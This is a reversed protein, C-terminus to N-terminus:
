RKVQGPIDLNPADGLSVQPRAVDVDPLAKTAARAAAQNVKMQRTAAESLQKELDHKSKM